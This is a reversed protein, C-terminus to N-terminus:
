KTQKRLIISIIITFFLGPIIKWLTDNLAVDIPVMEQISLLTTQFSEKGVQSIIMESNDSLVELKSLQIKDFLDSSILLIFWIGLGSILGLLVYTVFGVTMGESFSLLGENSYEKFYKIALFIAIPTILYGFVLNLNTPDPNLWTLLIFSFVSFVGGLGGFQYATKFYKNM